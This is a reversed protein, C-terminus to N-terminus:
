QEPLMTSKLDEMIMVQLISPVTLVLGTELPDQEVLHVIHPWDKRSFNGIERMALGM